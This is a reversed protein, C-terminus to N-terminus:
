GSKRRFSRKGGAPGRAGKARGADRGGASASEAHANRKADLAERFKRKMDDIDPKADAEAAAGATEAGGATGAAPKVAADEEPNEAAAQPVDERASDAM